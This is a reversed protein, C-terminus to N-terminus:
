FIGKFSALKCCPCQVGIFLSFRVFKAEASEAGDAKPSGLLLPPGASGGGGRRRTLHAKM